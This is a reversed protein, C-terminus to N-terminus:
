AEIPTIGGRQDLEDGVTLPRARRQLRQRRAADLVRPNPALTPM